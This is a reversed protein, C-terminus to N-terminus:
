YRQESLKERSMLIEHKTVFVQSFDQSGSSGMGLLQDFLDRVKAVEWDGKSNTWYVRRIGASHMYLVCRYCPRSERIDHRDFLIGGTSRSLVNASPTNPHKRTSEDHSSGALTSARTSHVLTAAEEDYTALDKAEAKERRLERAGGLRAVYVDAGRLNTHKTRDQVTYSALPPQCNSKGSSTKTSSPGSGGQVLPGAGYDCFYQAYGNLQKRLQRRKGKLGRSFIFSPKLQSLTKTALSTNSSAIASNIAMMEAHMSLAQHVHHGAKNELSKLEHKQNNDKRKTTHNQKRQQKKMVSSKTPLKGTKLAGGEYGPRFDNFGKGIVKGGKVVICGHRHRLPSLEAQELCLSLYYDSKM